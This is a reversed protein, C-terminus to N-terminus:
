PLVAKGLGAALQSMRFCGVALIDDWLLVFAAISVSNLVARHICVKGFATTM